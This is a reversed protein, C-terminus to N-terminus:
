CCYQSQHKKFNFNIMDTIVNLPKLLFCIFLIKNIKYECIANFQFYICVDDAWM